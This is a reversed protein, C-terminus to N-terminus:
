PARSPRVGVLHYRHRRCTVQAFDEGVECWIQFMNSKDNMYDEALSPKSHKKSSCRRTTCVRRMNAVRVSSRARILCRLFCESGSCSRVDSFMTAAPGRPSNELPSSRVLTCQSETHISRLSEESDYRQGQGGSNRNGSCSPRCGSGSCGRSCILM